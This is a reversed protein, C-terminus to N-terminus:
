NGHYLAVGGNKSPAVLCQLWGTPVEFTQLSNSTFEFEIDLM